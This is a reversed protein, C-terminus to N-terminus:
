KNVLKKWMMKWLTHDKTEKKVTNKAATTKADFTVLNHLYCANIFQAVRHIDIGTNDAIEEISM